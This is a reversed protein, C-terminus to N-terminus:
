DIGAFLREDNVKWLGLKAGADLWGHAYNIAAFANVYDKKKYFHGADALYRKITDLFTKRESERGNACEARKAM